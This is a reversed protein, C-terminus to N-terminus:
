AHDAGNKKVAYLRAFVGPRTREGCLRKIYKETTQMSAHGLVASIDALASGANYMESAMTHRFVHWANGPGFQEPSASFLRARLDALDHERYPFLYPLERQERKMGRTGFALQLPQAALVQHMALELEPRVEVQRKKHGKPLMTATMSNPHSRQRAVELYWPSHSTFFDQHILALAEEKRLGSYRLLTLFARERMDRCVALLKPFVTEIDLIAKPEPPRPARYPCLAVPNASVRGCKQGYSYVAMLHHRRQGVTGPGQELESSLAALWSAVDGPTPFDPLVRSLVDTRRYNKVSSKALAAGPEEWWRRWLDALSDGELRVDIDPTPRRPVFPVVTKEARRRGFEGGWYSM